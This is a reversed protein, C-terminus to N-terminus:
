RARRRACGRSATAGAARFWAAGSFGVGRRCCCCCSLVAASGPHPATRLAAWPRPRVWEHPPGGRGTPMVSATPSPSTGARTSAAGGVAPCWAAARPSARHGTAGVDGRWRRHGGHPLLVHVGGRWHPKVSCAAVVAMSVRQRRGDEMQRRSCSGDIPLSNASMASRVAMSWSVQRPKRASSNFASHSSRGASARFPPDLILAAPNRRSFDRRGNSKSALGLMPGAVTFVRALQSPILFLWDSQRIASEPVPLDWIGMARPM